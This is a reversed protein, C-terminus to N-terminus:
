KVHLIRLHSTTSFGAEGDVELRAVYVGSGLGEAHWTTSHTGAGRTADVLVAVEQGILNYVAIRVHATQPVTYDITTSHVFPNPYNHLLRAQAPVEGPQDRDTETDPTALRLDDFVLQGFAPQGDAYTLQISDIRLRGQPTGDGLWSGTGDADIDWAVLRWGKWDVTYWPSVEHDTAGGNPVREDVAFRFQNGKGDGFVFVQLTYSDDFRVDRPPGGALYERILWGEADTDWGYTVRLGREDDGQQNFVLTDVQALTSDTVIGVTSGSQQPVWWHEEVAGSFDDISRYDYLISETRFRLQKSLTEVNGFVDSVGPDVVLRYQTEAELTEQAFFTVVSQGDVPYHAFTGAAEQGDATRELRVRGDLTAPDVPEDYVLTLVPDREVDRANPAPTSDVLRPPTTDPFGTMFSVTIGDGGEGDGDGDLFYPGLQAKATGALTLTYSTRPLLTDPDLVLRTDGGSWRFTGSVAPDIDLAEEVSARDMKRSFTLTIPDTIRFLDEGGEPQSAVITPPVTSVLQVDAFTFFTDVPTVEASFPEYGEAEVTLAQTGEPVDPLYYFGNHLQDPDNSYQNFLSAYTDTVYTRDGLTVTAGNVPIDSDADSVIGTVIRKGPRPVDLYDLIAWYMIQAELAKWEANMNRQNQTPNTHFGAESLASPMSTFSQVFNRSGGKGQSVNRSRCSSTGYFDCEGFGGLDDIRMGRGLLPAMLEAMLKGGNPVAESGDRYQPWLVFAYNASPPGANSHISHFHAAAVRNADDVRQSLSVQQQDNTRSIYVTDIDTQELLMDRLRLGIRLVKRAEPYGFVGVNENQSHGPDLYINWGDLGTVAQAQVQAPATVGILCSFLLLPVLTRM